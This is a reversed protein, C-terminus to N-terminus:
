FIFRFGLSYVEDKKKDLPLKGASYSFFLGDSHTLAATFYFSEDLGSMKVAAPPDAERYYRLDAGFFLDKEGVKGIFTKFSAELGLRAYGGTEKLAIREKDNKPDVFTLDFLLVPIASGRPIIGGNAGTM